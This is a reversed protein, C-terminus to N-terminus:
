SEQKTEGCGVEDEDEDEDDGAGAADRLQAILWDPEAEMDAALMPETSWKNENLLYENDEDSFCESIGLLQRIQDPTHNQILRGVRACLLENLPLIDLFNAATLVAFLEPFGMLMSYQAYFPQVVDTIRRPWPIPMPMEQMPEDLYHHCFELVKALVPSTISPLPVEVETQDEEEEEEEEYVSKLFGSMAVVGPPVEFRQGEQTVLAFVSPM